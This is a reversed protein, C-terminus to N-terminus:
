SMLRPRAWLLLVLVLGAGLGTITLNLRKLTEYRALGAAQGAQREAELRQRVAATFEELRTTFPRDLGRLSKDIIAAQGPELRVHGSGLAERYRTGLGAHEALLSEVLGHQEPTVLSLVTKLQQEVQEGDRDFAARYHTYDEPSEGRLLINKWEQVQQKFTIEARSATDTMRFMRDLHDQDKAQQEAAYFLGFTAVCGGTLIMFLIAGALAIFTRRPMPATGAQQTQSM